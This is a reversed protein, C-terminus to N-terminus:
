ARVDKASPDSGEDDDFVFYSPEVDETELAARAAEYEAKSILYFVDDGDRVELPTGRLLALRQEESLQAIM